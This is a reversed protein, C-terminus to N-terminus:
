CSGGPGCCTSPRLVAASLGLRPCGLPLAGSFFDLPLFGVSVPFGPKSPFVMPIAGFMQVYLLFMQLFADFLNFRFVVHFAGLSVYAGWM